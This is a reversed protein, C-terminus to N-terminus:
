SLVHMPWALWLLQRGGKGGLGTLFSSPLARQSLSTAQLWGAKHQPRLDPLVQCGEERVAELPKRQSLTDGSYLIPNRVKDPAAPQGLTWCDLASFAEPAPDVQAASSLTHEFVSRSTICLAPLSSARVGSARYCQPLKGVHGELPRTKACSWPLHTVRLFHARTSDVWAGAPPESCPSARACSSVAEGAGRSRRRAWHKSEQRLADRM